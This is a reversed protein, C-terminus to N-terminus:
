EWGILFFRKQNSPNIEQYFTFYYNTNIWAGFDVKNRLCFNLIRWDFYKRDLNKEMDLIYDKLIYNTIPIDDTM